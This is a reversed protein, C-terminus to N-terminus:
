MQITTEANEVPSGAETPATDETPVAPEVSMQVPEEQIEEQQAAAEAPATEAELAM